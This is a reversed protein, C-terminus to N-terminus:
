DGPNMGAPLALGSFVPLLQPMKNTRYAEEIAPGIHEGVTRGDPMVIAAAFESEFTSIGAEVAELKAKIVLNLARWRQRVAQEHAEMQQNVTRRRPPKHSTWKFIKDERDPMPVILRVQRSRMVFAVMAQTPTEGYMFQDAGWRQLTRRIETLSKDTSVATDAAYTPM